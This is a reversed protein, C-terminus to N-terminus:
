KAIVKWHKLNPVTTNDSFSRIVGVNDMKSLKAYSLEDITETYEGLIVLDEETSLTWYKSQQDNPIKSYEYSPLYGAQYPITVSFYDVTNLVNNTPATEKKKRWMCNNLVTKNYTKTKTISNYAKNVITIKSAFLDQM